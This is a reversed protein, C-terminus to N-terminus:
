VYYLVSWNLDELFEEAVSNMVICFAPDYEPYYYDM